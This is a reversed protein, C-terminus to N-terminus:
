QGPSTQSIQNNFEMLKSLEGYTALINDKGEPIKLLTNALPCIRSPRTRWRYATCEGTTQDVRPKGTSPDIDVYQYFIDTAYGALKDSFSGTVLPKISGTPDGTNSYEPMVHATVIVRCKALKLLTFIVSLYDLKAGYLKRLDRKGEVQTGTINEVTDVQLHFADSLASLSDLVLTWDAPLRGVNRQLWVLVADKRNPPYHPSTRPSLSDCFEPSHFPICRTGLPIKNDLNLFVPNPFTLAATTKGSYPYGLLLIFRGSTSAPLTIAGFDTSSAPSSPFPLAPAPLASVQPAIGAGKFVAPPKALPPSTSPTPFTM